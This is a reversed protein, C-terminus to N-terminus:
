QTDNQIAKIIFLLTTKQQDTTHGITSSCSKEGSCRPYFLTPTIDQFSDSGGGMGLDPMGRGHGGWWHGWLWSRAVQVCWVLTVVATVVLWCWRWKQEDFQFPSSLDLSLQLSPSSLSLYFFFLTDPIPFFDPLSPVAKFKAHVTILNSIVKHLQM